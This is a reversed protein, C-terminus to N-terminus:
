ACCYDSEFDGGQLVINKWMMDGDASGSDQGPNYDVAWGSIYRIQILYDYPIKSSFDLKIQTM